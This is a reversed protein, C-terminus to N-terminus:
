RHKVLRRPSGRMAKKLARLERTGQAWFALEEEQTMGRTAQWVKEAGKHKMEVCDFTKTRTKM